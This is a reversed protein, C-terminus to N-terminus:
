DIYRNIHSSIAPTFQEPRSLVDMHRAGEIWCSAALGDLASFRQAVRRLAMVTESGCVILIKEALMRYADLPTTDISVASTERYIHADMNILRDRIVEPLSQWPSQNWGSIFHSIGSHDELGDRFRRMILRDAELVDHDQLPDLVGLAVPEILSLSRVQQPFRLAFQLALFGGMSHGVLHCSQGQTALEIVELHQQIVPVDPNTPASGYGALSVASIQCDDISHILLQSLGSIPRAGSGAGHILLIPIRGHGSMITQIEPHTNMPAFVLLIGPM